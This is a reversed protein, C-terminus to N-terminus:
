VFDHVKSASPTPDLQQTTLSATTLQCARSACNALPQVLHKLDSRGTMVLERLEEPDMSLGGRDSVSYNKLKKFADIALGM